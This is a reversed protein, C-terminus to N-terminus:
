IDDIPNNISQLQQYTATYNRSRGQPCPRLNEGRRDINPFISKDFSKRKSKLLETVRSDTKLGLTSLLM